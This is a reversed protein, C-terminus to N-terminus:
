SSPGVKPLMKVWERGSATRCGGRPALRVGWKGEPGEREPLATRRRGAKAQHQHSPSPGEERRDRGGSTPPLNQPDGAGAAQM